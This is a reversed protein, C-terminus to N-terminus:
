APAPAPARADASCVRNRGGNKALYLAKDACGILGDVSEGAHAAMCAVGVSITLPVRGGDLVVILGEIAARMMEGIHMAGKLDTNPLMVIFEEGGFRFADDAIRHVKRALTHAVEKLCIDGGLHGFTDNIKKFHDIDIMLIGLANKDRMSRQWEIAVQESFYARNKIGTLGDIRSLDKLRQHADSLNALAGDLELTRQQVRRELNDTAERQIRVNDEQLLKMRHALAFSFLLVELASGVQLGYETIFSNPIMGQNQMVYMAGGILLMSWALMFYRAQIGGRRLCLAGLIFAYICGTLAGAQAIKVIVSYRFFFAGIVVLVGLLVYCRFGAALRPYYRKVDLFSAAFQATTSIITGVLVIVGTNAWRPSYPWLYEFALGNIGMQMLTWSGIYLCYYLYNPDRVSLYLMTNYIFMALLIGYYLGLLMQEDHDRALLDSTSRLVLPMQLAGESKVRLYVTVQQGKALAIKFMPNRHKVARSAFPLTDGSVASEVHGDPYVVHVDVRDIMAYQYELFWDTVNASGNVLDFRAWYASDTFSFNTADKGPYDFSPSRPGPLVDKLTMNGGKDELLGLYRNVPYAQEVDRLVLPADAHAHPLLALLLLLLLCRRFFSSDQTLLNM